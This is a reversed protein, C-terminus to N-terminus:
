HIILMDNEVFSTTYDNFRNRVMHKWPALPQTPDTSTAEFIAKIEIYGSFKVLLGLFAVYFNIFLAKRVIM